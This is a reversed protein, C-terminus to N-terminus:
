IVGEMIKYGKVILDNMHLSWDKIKDVEAKSISLKKGVYYMMDIEKEHWKGDANWIGILEVLIVRRKVININAIQDLLTDINEEYPEFNPLVCEHAYSDLVELEQDAIDGDIKMAIHALNLFIKSEETNLGHLFM